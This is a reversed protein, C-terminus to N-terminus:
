CKRINQKVRCSELSQKEPNWYVGAKPNESRTCEPCAQGSGSVENSSIRKGCRNCKSYTVRSGSNNGHNSDVDKAPKSHIGPM